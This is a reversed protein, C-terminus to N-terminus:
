KRRWWVLAALVVASVGFIVVAATDVAREVPAWTITVSEIPGYTEDYSEEVTVDVIEYGPDANVIVDSEDCWVVTSLSTMLLLAMVLTLLIKRSM